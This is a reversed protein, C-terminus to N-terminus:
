DMDGCAFPFLIAVRFIPMVCCPKLESYYLLQPRCYLLAWNGDAESYSNEIVSLIM